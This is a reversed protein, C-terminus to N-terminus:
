RHQTRTERFLLRGFSLSPQRLGFFLLLRLISKWHVKSADKPKFMHAANLLWPGSYPLDIFARGSADTVYLGRVNPASKSIASIKAGAMPRKRFYLRVPVEEVRQTKLLTSELVLELPLGTFTDKGSNPSSINLQLKSTRSYKEIIPNSPKEFGKYAGLIHNLGEYALYKKFTEIKYFTFESPKTHLTVTSISKTPSEFSIAPSRGDIASIKHSKKM